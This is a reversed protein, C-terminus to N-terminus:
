DWIKDILAVTWERKEDYTYWRIRPDSLNVQSIEKWPTPAMKLETDPRIPTMFCVVGHEMGKPISFLSFSPFKMVDGTPAHLFMGKLNALFGKEAEPLTVVGKKNKRWEGGQVFEFIEYESEIRNGVGVMRSHTFRVAWQGNKSILLVRGVPMVIGHGALGLGGPFLREEKEEAV